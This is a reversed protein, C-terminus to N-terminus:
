SAGAAAVRNRGERKAAYLAQDARAVLGDRDEADRPCAAVGISITIRRRGGPTVFAHRDTSARLREAITVAGARATNPLILAFEEGGYRALLDCDRMNRKILDTLDILIRDGTPHGWTDNVAKFHDIDIMALAVPQSYRRSASVEERLRKLLYKHNYAGTLGDTVSLEYLRHNEIDLSVQRAFLQLLDQDSKGFVAARSHHTLTLVGMTRGRVVLPVCLMAVFRSNQGDVKLFRRDHAVDAVCAPRRHRAVWGAIGEGVKFTIKELERRSIGHGQRFVLTDTAEDLLMVTCADARFLRATERAVTRLMPDLGVKSAIVRSIRNLVDLTDVRTDM